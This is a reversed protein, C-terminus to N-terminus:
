RRKQSADASRRKKLCGVGDGVVVEVCEEKFEEAGEGDKGLLEGLEVKGAGKSGVM